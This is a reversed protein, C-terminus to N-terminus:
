EAAQRKPTAPLRDIVMAGNRIVAKLTENPRALLSLDAVPDGDVVILDALAGATVVGVKAGRSLMEGPVRTAWSLVDAPAMGFEAAYLPLERAYRGVEHDLPDDKVIDRMVGSYDDGVLIKVGAKHALPLMKKMANWSTKFEGAPDFGPTDMCVKTLMLSPVWYCGKTVMAEIVEEDIDDAHDIVDFGVDICDMIVDKTCVHARALAGREHAANVIAAMEDHSMNRPGRHPSILHGASAFVKIMQAGQRIENRVIKRLEDPGDGFLDIGPENYRQWWKQADNADATTGIHHSCPLIRPGPIIGMEIAMKLQPDILHANGAGIYGTFGSEILVRCTRVGIAMLVGPPLEKGLQAGSFAEAISFKYFDPHMHGSIMGPMVTMGGVDIRDGGAGPQESVAAIKDGDITVNRRGALMQRGDFVRANTLTLMIPEGLEIQDAL